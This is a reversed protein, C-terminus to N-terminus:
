ETIYVTTGPCTTNKTTTYISSVFIPNQGGVQQTTLFTNFPVTCYTRIVGGVLTTGNKIFITPIRSAKFAFISSAIAMAAIISVILRAKYM